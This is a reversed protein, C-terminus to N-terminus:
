RRALAYYGKRAQVKYGEKSKIEIHRFSGDKITNSPTYGLAYQTRLENTIQDFADRLKNFRMDVEFVRGGTEEAVKKMYGEGKTGYIGGTFLLVYCITDAKQAAEVAENLKVRSGEDVGDSMIIIAKRGVESALKDTSALYIADYLTTGPSPVTPLPGQGVGPVGSHQGQPVNVHAQEMARQIQRPSSTMDQLLEDDVDFTMLFALDNATMVQHLFAGLVEKEAPIVQMMSGSTDMLIGLTLPQNTESSFYKIAQTKGDEALEFDEKKLGPILAGHKDKVNCYVNVVDVTVKLTELPEQENQPPQQAGGAAVALLLIVLSRLIHFVYSGPRM